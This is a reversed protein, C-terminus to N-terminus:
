WRWVFEERFQKKKVPLLSLLKVNYLCPCILMVCLAHLM